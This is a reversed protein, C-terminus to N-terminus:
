ASARHRDLVELLAAGYRTAKVPGLGPLAVLEEPSRPCASALTALTADHFIVHPPVGSARAADARWKRLAALTEPDATSELADAPRVGTVPRRGPRAAEELRRRAAGIGGAPDTAPM